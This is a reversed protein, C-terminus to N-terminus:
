RLTGTFYSLFDTQKAFINVRKIVWLTNM